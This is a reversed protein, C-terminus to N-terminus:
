EHRIQSTIKPEEQRNLVLNITDTYQPSCTIRGPM